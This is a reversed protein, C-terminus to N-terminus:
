IDYKALIQSPTKRLLLRVPLVGFALCVAYLIVLLVGALWAPYYLLETLLPSSAAWAGMLVSCVLFGIFV